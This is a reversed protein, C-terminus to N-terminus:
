NCTPPFSWILTYNPRFSWILTDQDVKKKYVTLRTKM